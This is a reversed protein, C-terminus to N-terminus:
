TAGRRSAHTLLADFTWIRTLALHCFCRRQPARKRAVEQMVEKLNTWAVESFFLASNFEKSSRWKVHGRRQSRPPVGDM